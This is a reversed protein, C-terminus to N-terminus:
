GAGSLWHQAADHVLPATGSGAEPWNTKRRSAMCNQGAPGAPATLVTFVRDFSGPFDFATTVLGGSGFSADLMGDDNYRALAFNSVGNFGGVGATLIQGNALVAVTRVAVGTGGFDTTVKGGTGFTPDLTGATQASTFQSTLVLSLALLALNFQALLFFYSTMKRNM